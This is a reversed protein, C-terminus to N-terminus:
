PVAAAGRLEILRWGRGPLDIELGKEALALPARSIADTATVGAPLQRLLRGLEIRCRAAEETQSGLVLLARDAKLYLSGLVPAPSVRYLKSGQWYPVFTTQADEYDRLALDVAAPQGRTTTDHVLAIALAQDM